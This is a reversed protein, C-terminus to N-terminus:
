LSLGFDAAATQKIADPVGAGVGVVRRSGMDSGTQSYRLVSLEEHPGFSGAPTWVEYTKVGDASSLMVVRWSKGSKATVLDGPKKLLTVAGLGVAGLAAVLLLGKSNSKAMTPPTEPSHTAPSVHGLHEALLSACFYPSDTM